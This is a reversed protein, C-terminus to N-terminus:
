FHHDAGLYSIALVSCLHVQDLLLATVDDQIHSEIEFKVDAAESPSLDDNFSNFVDFDLSSGAAPANNLEATSPLDPCLSM